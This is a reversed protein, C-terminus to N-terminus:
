LGVFLIDNIVAIGHSPVAVIHEFPRHATADYRAFSRAFAQHALEGAGACDEHLRSVGRRKHHVHGSMPTTPLLFQISQNDM